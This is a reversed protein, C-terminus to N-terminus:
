HCAGRHKCRPPPSLRTPSSAGTRGSSGRSPWIGYRYVYFASKLTETAVGMLDRERRWWTEPNSRSEELPLHYCQVVVGSDELVKRFTARARRTHFPDTVITVTTWRERELLDRITVAEEYTSTAGLALIVREPALGRAIAIRRKAEGQSLSDEGTYVKLLPTEPGVLILRDGLGQKCLRISGMLREGAAGSLAVVADAPELDDEVILWRAYGELGAPLAFVLLLGLLAVPVLCGLFFRRKGIM